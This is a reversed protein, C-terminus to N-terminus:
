PNLNLFNISQSMSNMVSFYSDKFLQQIQYNLDFAEIEEQLNTLNKIMRKIQFLLQNKSGTEIKNLYPNPNSSTGSSIQKGTKTNKAFM